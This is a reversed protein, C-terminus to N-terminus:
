EEDRSLEDDGNYLEAAAIKIADDDDVVDNDNNDDGDATGCIISFGNSM